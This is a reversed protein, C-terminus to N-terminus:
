AKAKRRSAAAQELEETWAGLTAVEIEDLADFASAQGAPLIGAQALKGAVYSEFADQRDNFVARGAADFRERIEARETTDTDSSAGAAQPQPGARDEGAEEPADEVITGALPQEEYTAADPAPQPAAREVPQPRMESYDSSPEQPPVARPSGDTESSVTTQPLAVPAADDTEDVALWEPRDLPMDGPFALQFARRAAMTEAKGEADKDFDGKKTGSLHFRPKRGIGEFIGGDARKVRCKVTVYPTEDRLVEQAEDWELGRFLPKGSNDVLRTAIQAYGYASIMPQWHGDVKMIYVHNKHPLLRESKCLYLTGAVAELGGERMAKGWSSQVLAAVVMDRTLSEGIYTEFEPHQSLLAVGTEMPERVAIGSAQSTPQGTAQARLAEIEARTKPM